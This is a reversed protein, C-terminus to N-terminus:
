PLLEPAMIQLGKPLPKDSPQDAAIGADGFWRAQNYWTLIPWFKMM